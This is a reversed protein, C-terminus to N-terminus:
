VGPPAIGGMKYTWATFEEMQKSREGYVARFKSIARVIVFAVEIELIRREQPEISHKMWNIVDNFDYARFVPSEKLTKFMHPMDTAPLLGEAAAALTIACEFEENRWQEIAAHIQRQAASRKDTEVFRTHDDPGQARHAM